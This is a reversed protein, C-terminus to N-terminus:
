PRVNTCLAEPELCHCGLRDGFVVGLGCWSAIGRGPCRTRLGHNLRLRKTVRSRGKYAPLRLDTRGRRKQPRCCKLASGPQPPRKGGPSLLSHLGSKLHTARLRRRVPRYTIRRRSEDVRRTLDLGGQRARQRPSWRRYASLPTKVWAEFRVRDAQPPREASRLPGACRRPTCRLRM